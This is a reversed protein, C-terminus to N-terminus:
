CSASRTTAFIPRCTLSACAAAPRLPRRGACRLRAARRRPPMSPRSRKARHPMSNSIPPPWHRSQACGATPKTAANRACLTRKASHASGTASKSCRSCCSRGRRRSRRDRGRRWNTIGRARRRPPRVRAAPQRPQLARRRQRSRAGIRARTRRRRGGGPEARAPGARSQGRCDCQTSIKGAAERLTREAGRLDGQQRLALGREILRTPDPQFVSRLLKLLM